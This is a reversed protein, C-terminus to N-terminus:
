ECSSGPLRRSPFCPRAPCGSSSRATKSASRTPRPTKPKRTSSSCSQRCGASSRITTTGNARSPSVCSRARKSNSALATSRAPSAITASRCPRLRHVRFGGFPLRAHSCLAGFAFAQEGQRIIAVRQSRMRVEKPTGDPFAELPGASVWRKMRSHPIINKAKLRLPPDLGLLPAVTMQMLGGSIVGAVLLVIGAVVPDSNTDASSPFFILIIGGAIMAISAVGWTGLISLGLFALAPSM